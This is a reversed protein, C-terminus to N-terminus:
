IPKFGTALNATSPLRVEGSHAAALRRAIESQVRQRAEAELQQWMPFQRYLRPAADALWAASPAEWVGEVPRVAVAEFGAAELDARLLNPDCWRILGPPWEAPEWGPFCADLVEMLVLAPAAGRRNTWSTLAVRGGPKLVRALERVGQLPNPFLMAGFLSFGADFAADPLDLAQGDMTRAESGRARHGAAELRQALRHVMAPAFDTAVVTAGAQAALLALAGTGAAVDVVREGPRVAIARMAEVAFQRTFPEALAEYDAVSEDWGEPEHLSIAM